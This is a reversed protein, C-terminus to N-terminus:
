AELTTEKKVPSKKATSKKAVRKKVGETDSKKAGRKKTELNIVKSNEDIANRNIEIMNGLMKIESDYKKTIFFIAVVLVVIILWEM